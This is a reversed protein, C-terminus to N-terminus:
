ETFLLLTFVHDSTVKCDTFDDASSFSIMKSTKRSPFKIFSAFM